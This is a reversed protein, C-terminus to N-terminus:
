YNPFPNDKEVDFRESIFEEFLQREGPTRRMMEEYQISGRMFYVISIVHKILSRVEAQMSKFM